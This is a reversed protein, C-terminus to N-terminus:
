RETLIFDGGKLAPVKQRPNVQAFVDSLHQGASLGDHHTTPPFRWARGPQAWGGRWGGRLAWAGIEHSKELGPNSEPTSLSSHSSHSATRGAPAFSRSVGQWTRTPM